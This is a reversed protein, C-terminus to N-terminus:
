ADIGYSCPDFKVRGQLLPPAIPLARSPLKQSAVPPPLRAPLPPLCSISTNFTAQCAGGRVSCDDDTLPNSPSLRGGARGGAAPSGESRMPKLSRRRRRQQSRPLSPARLSAVVASCCSHMRPSAAAQAFPGLAVQLLMLLGPVYIM